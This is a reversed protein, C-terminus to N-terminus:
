KPPFRNVRPPPNSELYAAIAAKGEPSDRFRPHPSDPTSALAKRVEGLADGMLKVDVAAAVHKDPKYGKYREGIEIQLQQANELASELAAAILQLNM